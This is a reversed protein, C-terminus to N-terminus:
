TVRHCSFSSPCNINLCVYFEYWMFDNKEVNKIEYKLTLNLFTVRAWFPVLISCSEVAALQGGM